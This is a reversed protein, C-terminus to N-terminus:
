VHLHREIFGMNFGSTLKTTAPQLAFPKRPASIQMRLTCFISSTHDIVVRVSVTMRVGMRFTLGSVQGAAGDAM